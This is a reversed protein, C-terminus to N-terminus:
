DWELTWMAHIRALENQWFRPWKRWIETTQRIGSDDVASGSREVLWKPKELHRILEALEEYMRPKKLTESM